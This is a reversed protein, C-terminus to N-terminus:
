AEKRALVLMVRESKDTWFPNHIFCCRIGGGANGLDPEVPIIESGAHASGGRRLVM